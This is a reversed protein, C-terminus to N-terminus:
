LDERNIIGEVKMKVGKYYGGEDDREEIVL